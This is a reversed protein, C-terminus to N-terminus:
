GAKRTKMAELERQQQEILRKYSNKLNADAEKEMANSLAFVYATKLAQEEPVEFHPKVGTGEWNAKTIPNIARALPIHVSFHESLRRDEGHHAGGGTTEGVITSRKLNKLNYAFEEAGSFTHRSTLLFVDKREYRRGQVTPKTWYQETRNGERWYLDNLHVPQNGFFYSCVLAVMAPEGGGNHRLDIILIM